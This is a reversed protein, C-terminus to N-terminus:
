GSAQGSVNANSTKIPGLHENFKALSEHHIRRTYITSIFKKM